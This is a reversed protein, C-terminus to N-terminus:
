PEVFMKKDFFDDRAVLDRMDEASFYDLLFQEVQKKALEEVERIKMKFYDNNEDCNEISVNMAYFIANMVKKRFCAGCIKNDDVIQCCLVGDNDIAYTVIAGGATNRVVIKLGNYKDLFNDYEFEFM